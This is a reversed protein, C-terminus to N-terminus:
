KRRTSHAERKTGEAHIWTAIDDIVYQPVHGPTNYEAPASRGEGELFLHNLKPYSKFTARQTQGLARRWNEFDRMTVQYDREGQLVLLPQRLKLAAIPADYGRLDLWYAAPVGFLEKAEPQEGTEKLNKVRAAQQRIKDLTVKDNEDLSGDLAHLYEYQRVIADEFTETAGALVILGALKPDGAAIRPALTGGLSHGLIFVRRADIGPTRRLLEAAALADDIVEEKVTLDEGSTQVVKAGHVKTRKDYRLVAIGRSALGWALDRFPKNTGHSEDRDNPGSGHVLVVSPFPGQGNPLALTGPLPWEGGSGVVIEQERFSSPVAYVPPQWAAVKGAATAAFVVAALAEAGQRVVQVQQAAVQFLLPTGIEDTWMDLTAEGASVMHYRRTKILQDNATYTPTEAREIVIEFDRGVTPLFFTFKQSEGKAEDYQALLYLYQHWVLNELVVSAKTPLERATQGPLSLKVTSGAFDATLVTTESIAVTFSFPRNRKTFTVAKQKPGGAATLEAEALTTGDPKATLTYSEIVAVKGAISTTYTGSGSTQGRAASACLGLLCLASLILIRM